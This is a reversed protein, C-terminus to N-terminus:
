EGNDNGSAPLELLGIGIRFDRLGIHAADELEEGTENAFRRLAISEDTALTFKVPREDGDTRNLASELADALSVDGYQRMVRLSEACGHDEDNLDMTPKSRIRIAARRLIAALEHRPVDGIDNAIAELKDAFDSATM